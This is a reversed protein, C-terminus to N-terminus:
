KVLYLATVADDDNVTYLIGGTLDSYNRSISGSTIAGDTDIVYVAVDDTYALAKDGVTIVDNSAKKFSTTGAVTEYDGKDAATLDSYVGDDNVKYSGYLGGLNDANATSAKVMIEVIKGNVVANYTYYEGLDTDNVLASRSERAIYLLDDSSANTDADIIFVYDAVSGDKVIYGTTADMSPVNKYGTYVSASDFKGDKLEISVYVTKSDATVGSAVATKGKEISIPSGTTDESTLVYNDDDDDYKYSYVGATYRDDTEISESTGDAYVVEAYHTTTGWADKEEGPRVVYLYETSDETSGDFHVLYGNYIYFTGESDTKVEAQSYENAFEYKEGDIKLWGSYNTGLSSSTVKGDLTEVDDVALVTADMDTAVDWGPKLFVMLVDDEAYDKIMAYADADDEADITITAYNKNTIYYGAEYVTLTVDTVVDDDDTNVTTVEAVYPETVVFATVEDNDNAYVEITYGNIGKQLHTLTVKADVGGNYYVTATGVNDYDDKLDDVVDEDFDVGDYTAVPADAVFAVVDGDYVWSYGPRAFDDATNKPTTTDKKLDPFYKECFQQYADGDETRYDDGTAPVKEAPTNGVIVQMGDSGIITTGKSAYKVTNATLTQFAMQAADQRSLENSLVLGKPSIGAEITDAAVNIMWDSGVYKEIAPDYGLAVLLMKAFAAGTLKGEPFFNGNGDGALIGLNVCYGIYPASWRDAAVDNFVTSNTTLKEASETGLLLYCIIKAAQERTLISNPQFDGKDGGELVGLGVMVDVAEVNTIEDGDTFDKSAAGAGIVMMGMLMVAALALSLTRKLNRMQFEEKDYKAMLAM